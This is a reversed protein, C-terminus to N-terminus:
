TSARLGVIKSIHAEHTLLAELMEKQYSYRNYTRVIGSLSGSRHNLITETVHIPVGLKACNTSFTRRLDHLVWDKVGSRKDLRQKCGSWDNFPQPNLHEMVLPTIPISHTLKNKTKPFTLVDTINEKKIGAIEMRRQGTLMLVRVIRNFILTGDSGEPKTAKWIAKLEADELVRERSELANPVTMGLLPHRDLYENKLCWNLFARLTAYAMNQATPKGDLERLKTKIEFKTIDQLSGVFNFSKLYYEYQGYTGTTIRGRVDDLFEQLARPANIKPHTSSQILELKAKTRADKLALDPYRGLTLLTNAKKVVFSKSRTSVRLGFSPLHTDWYVTQRDSPQIRQIALDTLALKAM